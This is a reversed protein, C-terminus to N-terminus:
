KEEEMLVARTNYDSAMDNHSIFESELDQDIADGANPGRNKKKKSKKKKKKSHSSKIDRQIKSFELLAARQEEIYSPDKWDDWDSSVSSSSENEELIANTKPAAATM